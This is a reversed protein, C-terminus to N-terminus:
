NPGQRLSPRWPVAALSSSFRLPQKRSEVAIKEILDDGDEFERM